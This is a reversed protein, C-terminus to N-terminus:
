YSLRSLKRFEWPAIPDKMSWLGVKKARATQELQFMEKSDDFYKYHWALGAELLAKNLNRGDELFVIGLTRNYRDMGVVEVRVQKTFCLSSTFQKAKNGYDQNSEPCDIGQLRIKQQKRGNVLLTFTDGDAVSIVKGSIYTVQAHVNLVFLLLATLLFKTKM